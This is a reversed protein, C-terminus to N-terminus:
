RSEPFFILTKVQPSEIDLCRVQGNEGEEVMVRQPSQIYHTINPFDKTPEGLTVEIANADSGKEECSIGILPMQGALQQDGIAQSEVRIRVPTQKSRNSLADLYEQWRERPIETTQAM